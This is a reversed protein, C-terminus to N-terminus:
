EIQDLVTQNFEPYAILRLPDFHIALKDIIKLVGSQYLYGIIPILAENQIVMNSPKYIGGIRTSSEAYRLTQTTNNKSLILNKEDQTIEM